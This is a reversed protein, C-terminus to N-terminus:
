ELTIGRHLYLSGCGRFGLFGPLVSVLGWRGLVRVRSVWGLMGVVIFLFFYNLIQFFLGPFFMARGEQSEPEHTARIARCM